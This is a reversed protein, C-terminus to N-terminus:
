GALASQCSSFSFSKPLANFEKETSLRDNELVNRRDQRKTKIKQVQQNPHLIWDKTAISLNAIINGTNLMLKKPVEKVDSGLSEFPNKDLNMKVAIDMDISIAVRHALYHMPLISGILIAKSLPFIVEGAANRISAGLYDLNKILNIIAETILQYEFANQSIKIDGERDKDEPNKKRAKSFMRSFNHFHTNLKAQERVRVIGKIANKAYNTAIPITGVRILEYLAPVSLFTFVIASNPDSVDFINFQGLGGNSNLAMYTFMFSYSAISAKLAQKFRHRPKNQGFSYVFRKYTEHFVGITSGWAFNMFAILPTFEASPDIVTHLWSAAAGLGLQLLGAGFVGFLFDGKTPKQAVVSFYNQWHEINKKRIKPYLEIDAKSNETDMWVLVSDRGDIDDKRSKGAYFNQWRMHKKILKLGIENAHVKNVFIYSVQSDSPKVRVLDIKGTEDLEATGSGVSDLTTKIKGKELRESFEEQSYAEREEELKLLTKFYLQTFLAYRKGRDSTAKQYAEASVGVAAKDDAYAFPIPALLSTFLFIIALLLAKAKPPQTKLVSCNNM